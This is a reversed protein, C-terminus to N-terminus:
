ERFSVVDSQRIVTLDAWESLSAVRSPKIAQPSDM